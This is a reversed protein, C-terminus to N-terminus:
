NKLPELDFRQLDNIKWGDSTRVLNLQVSTKTNEIKDSGDTDLHEDFQVFVKYDDKQPDYVDFYVHVDSVTINDFLNYKDKENDFLSNYYDDTILPKLKKSKDKFSTGKEMEFMVKVFQQATERIHKEDEDIVTKSQRKVTESLRNNTEKLTIQEQQLVEIERDKQKIQQNAINFGLLVAGILLLSIILFSIIKNKM